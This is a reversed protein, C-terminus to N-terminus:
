RAQTRVDAYLVYYGRYFQVMAVGRFCRRGQTWSRAAQFSDGDFAELSECVRCFNERQTGGARNGRHRNAREHPIASIGTVLVMGGLLPAPTQNVVIRLLKVLGGSENVERLASSTRQATGRPERGRCNRKGVSQRQKIMENKFHTGQDTVWTKVVGRTTFWLYKDGSAAQSM